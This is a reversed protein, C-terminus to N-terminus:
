RSPLSSNKTSSVYIKGMPLQFISLTLLYASEYWSIDDFSHFENSIAPIAVGIITRDQNLYKAVIAIAYPSYINVLATLFVASCISLVIPLVVKFPPYQAGNENPHRRAGEEDPKPEDVDTPNQHDGDASPLRIQDSRTQMEIQPDTSSTSKPAKKSWLMTHCLATSSTSTLSLTTSLHCKLLCESHSYVTDVHVVFLNTSGVALSSATLPALLTHTRLKPLSVSARISPHHNYDM